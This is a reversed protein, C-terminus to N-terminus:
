GYWAALRGDTMILLNGVPSTSLSGTKKLKDSREAPNRFIVPSERSFAFLKSRNVPDHRDKQRDTQPM